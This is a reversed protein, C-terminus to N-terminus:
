IELGKGTMLFTGMLIIKRLFGGLFHLHISHYIVLLWGGSPITKDTEVVDDPGSQFSALQHTKADYSSNLDNLSPILFM